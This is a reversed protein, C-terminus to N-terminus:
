DEFSGRALATGKARTLEIRVSHEGRPLDRRVVVLLYRGAIAGELGRPRCPAPQAVALRSVTVLALMLWPRHPTVRV